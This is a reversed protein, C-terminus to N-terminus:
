QNGDEDRKPDIEYPKSDASLLRLSANSLDRLRPYAILPRTAGLGTEIPRYGQRASLRAWAAQAEDNQKFADMVRALSESAQPLTGDKYLDGMRGLMDAIQATLLGEASKEPAECSKSEDPNDLDKIAISKEPFTADLARILDARRRGLAEVRGIAVDRSKRQQELAVPEGSEDVGGPDLAPLKGEDVKDAFDADRTPKHCIARFSEGTLDERLAQAGVRDCIVGFMEEGVTGRAPTVRSTDLAPACAPTLAALTVLGILGLLNICHTLPRRGLPRRDPPSDISSRRPDVDSRRSQGGPSAAVTFRRRQRM